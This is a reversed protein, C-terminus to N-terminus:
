SFAFLNKFFITSIYSKKHTRAHMHMRARTQTRRLKLKKRSNDLKQLAHFQVVAALCSFFTHVDNPATSKVGNRCVHPDEVGSVLELTHLYHCLRCM